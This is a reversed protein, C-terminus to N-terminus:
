RQVGRSQLAQALLNAQENLEHYTM